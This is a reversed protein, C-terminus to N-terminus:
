QIDSFHKYFYPFDESGAHLSPCYGAWLFSVGVKNLYSALVTFLGLSRHTSLWYTHNCLRFQKSNANCINNISINADRNAYQMLAHM